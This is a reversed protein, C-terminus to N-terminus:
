FFFFLPRKHNAEKVINELNMKTTAYVLVEDWKKALYYVMQISIGCSNIWKGNVFIQITEM